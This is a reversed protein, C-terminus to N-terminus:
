TAFETTTLFLGGVPFHATAFADFFGTKLGLFFCTGSGISFQAVGVRFFDKSRSLYIPKECFHFNTIWNIIQPKSFVGRMYLLNAVGRADHAVMVCSIRVAQNQTSVGLGLIWGSDM